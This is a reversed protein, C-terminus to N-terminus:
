PIAIAIVSETGVARVHGREKIGIIRMIAGGRQKYVGAAFRRLGSARGVVRWARCVGDAEFHGLVLHSPGFATVNIGAGISYSLHYIERTAACHLGARAVSNRNECGCIM